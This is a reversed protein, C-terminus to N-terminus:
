GKFWEEGLKKIVDGYEDMVRTVTEDIKKREKQSVESEGIGLNDKDIFYFKGIRIAPIKGAKVLRFVQVRSLGLIKAAETITLHNKMIIRINCKM